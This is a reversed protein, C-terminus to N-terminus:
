LVAAHKFAYQVYMDKDTVSSVNLLNSPFKCYQLLVMAM